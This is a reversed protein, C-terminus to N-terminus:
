PALSLSWSFCSFYSLKLCLIDQIIGFIRVVIHSSLSFACLTILSNYLWDCGQTNPSFLFRQNIERKIASSVEAPSFEKWYSFFTAFPFPTWNIHYKINGLLIVQPEINRQFKKGSSTTSRRHRSKIQRLQQQTAATASNLNGWMKWCLKVVKSMPEGWCINQYLSSFSLTRNSLKDKISWRVPSQQCRRYFNGKLM